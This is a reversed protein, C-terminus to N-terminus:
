RMAALTSVECTLICGLSLLMMPPTTLGFEAWWALCTNENKQTEAIMASKTLESKQASRVFLM